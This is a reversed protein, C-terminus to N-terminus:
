FNPAVNGWTTSPVPADRPLLLVLATAVGAGVVAVLVAALAVWKGNGGSRAQPPAPPPLSPVKLEEEPPSMALLKEAPPAKVTPPPAPPQQPPSPAPTPKDGMLAMPPEQAAPAPEKSPEKVPPKAPEAAAVRPPETGEPGSKRAQEVAALAAAVEAAQKEVTARLEAPADKAERLYQQYFSQAEALKGARRFAQAASYLYGTAAEGTAKDHAHQWEVAAEAFKGSAYLAKAKKAYKEDAGPKAAKAKPEKKDHHSAHHGKGAWAATAVLLALAAAGARM